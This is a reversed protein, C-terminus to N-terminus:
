PWERLHEECLWRGGSNKRMAVKSIKEENCLECYHFDENSGGQIEEITPQVFSEIDAWYRLSKNPGERDKKLFGKESADHLARYVFRKKGNTVREGILAYVKKAIDDVGLKRENSTNRMVYQVITLARPSLGTEIREAVLSDLLKEGELVDPETLSLVRGTSDETLRYGRQFMFLLGSSQARRFAHWLDRTMGEIAKADKGLGRVIDIVDDFEAESIKKLL